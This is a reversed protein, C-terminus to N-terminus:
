IRGTEIYKASASAEDVPTANLDRPLEDAFTPSVDAKAAEIVGTLYAEQAARAARELTAREHARAGKLSAFRRQSLDYNLLNTRVRSDYPAYPLAGPEPPTPAMGLRAAIIREASTYRLKHGGSEGQIVWLPQAHYGRRFADILNTRGQSRVRKCHPCRYSDPQTHAGCECPWPTLCRSCVAGATWIYSCRCPQEMEMLEAWDLQTDRSMTALPICQYVLWRQVPAWPFGAEWWLEAHGLHPSAPSIAALDKRWAEPLPEQWSFFTM